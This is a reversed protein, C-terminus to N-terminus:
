PITQEEPSSFLMTAGGSAFNAVDAAATQGEASGLAQGAAEKSAFRLEAIAYASPPNGDLGECRGASFSEVGPIKHVLPLHTTEYYADFAAPDTPRNYVITVRYM